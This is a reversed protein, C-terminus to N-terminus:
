NNPPTRYYLFSHELCHHSTLWTRKVMPNDIMISWLNTNERVFEHILTNIGLALTTRVLANSLNNLKCHTLLIAAGHPSLMKILTPLIWIRDKWGHPWSGVLWSGSWVPCRNETYGHYMLIQQKLQGINSVTNHFGSSVLVCACCLLLKMQLHSCKCEWLGSMCWVMRVEPKKRKLFINQM